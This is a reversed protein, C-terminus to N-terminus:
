ESDRSKLDNSALPMYEAGYSRLNSRYLTLRVAEFPELAAEPLSGPAAEVAMPRGKRRRGAADKLRETRVRAVTVHSWFARKEPEYLRADALAASLRGQLEVAGESPASLAYLRARGRPPLPRPEPELRMPVAVGCAEGIIAAVADIRREPLYGLFCLTIHLAPERVARLAPDALAVAQWATIAARVREPLDLAVFLRARPSKLREKAM